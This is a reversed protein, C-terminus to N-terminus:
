PPPADSLRLAVLRGDAEAVYQVRVRELSVLHEALHAAPFADGGVRLPGIEFALSRGDDTRLVFRDVQAADPGDVSTVIGTEERVNDPLANCGAAVPILWLLVALLRRRRERPLPRM